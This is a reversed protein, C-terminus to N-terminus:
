IWIKETKNKYLKHLNNKNIRFQTGRDHNNSGVNSCIYVFGKNILDIFNNISAMEYYTTKNIIMKDDNISLEVMM